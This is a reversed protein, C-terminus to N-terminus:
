KLYSALMKATTLAEYDKKEQELKALKAKPDLDRLTSIKMGAIREVIREGLKLEKRITEYSQRTNLIRDAVEKFHTYVEIEFNIKNISDQKFKKVLEHYNMMCMKIWEGGTIPRTVGKYVVALSFSKPVQAAKRVEAEVETDTITKIRKSRAIFVKKEDGASEDRIVVKGWDDKLKFLKSFNPKVYSPDGKIYWGNLNGSSAPEVTFNYTLTGKSNEWFSEKDEDSMTLGYNPTLLKWPEPKNCLAAYGAKVMSKSDFAPINVNLGVGIGFSGMSLSLPFCVPVYDAEWNDLDNLHTPVYPLLKSVAARFEPDVMVETYRPAAAGFDTWKFMGKDGFNGKGVLVGARVLQAVVDNVSADGHPHYKGITSGILTATKIRRDKPADLAALIVRKYVPKM